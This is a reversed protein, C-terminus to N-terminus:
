LAALVTGHVLRHGEACTLHKHWHWQSPVCLVCCVPCLPCMGVIGLRRQLLACGCWVAHWAVHSLRMVCWDITTTLGEEWTTRTGSVGLGICCLPCVVYL